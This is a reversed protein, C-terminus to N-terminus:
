TLYKSLSNILGSLQKNMRCIKKNLDDWVEKRLFALEVSIILLTEIEALSGASIRLFRIFDRTQKRAAGEGINAPISVSARRIQNTLGFIESKPFNETIKYMTIVFGISEKWIDLEKHSKM